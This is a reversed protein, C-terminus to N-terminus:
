RNATTLALSPPDAPESIIRQEVRPRNGAGGNFAMPLESQFKKRPQSPVIYAKKYRKGSRSGRGIKLGALIVSEPPRLRAHFRCVAPKPVCARKLYNNM